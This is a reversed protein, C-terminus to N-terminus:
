PAASEEDGRYRVNWLTLGRAPATPGAQARDGAALVRGVWEVTERGRGVLVLSGVINRVMNYLFGDAEIEIMISQAFEHKTRAVDLTSITRISSQRPSGSAQFSRFDHRGTLLGAARRMSGVDLARPIYWSYARRFPDRELGDQIVYRYRKSIADRIAHFGAPAVEVHRIHIDEPTNAELAQRLVPSELRTRCRFSVVQGVAHVGADTRGSAVVRVPQGTIERLAWEIKEQVTVRGPQVQWGSYGTGDYALTMRYDRM